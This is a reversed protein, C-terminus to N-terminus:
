RKREMLNIGIGMCVVGILLMVAIPEMLETLGRGHIAVSKLADLGYTIPLVKSIALLMNNTVLEIPWFAGGIMAMGTAVIPVVAQLQQPSQVLGMVLMSLAVISFTYVATILLLLGFQDGVDFNFLYKFLVLVLVIQVYGITFSYLLHGMYVQWKDLPSLILRNWTGFKKEEVIKMLSFMITYISFFLAMGFLMQLQGDYVFSEQEGELSQTEVTLAPEELMEAVRERAEGSTSQQELQRIRLEEAYTRNIYSEVEFRNPDDAVILLRYDDEMLQLAMGTDGDLVAQRAEQEEVLEFQLGESKNLQELWEDQQQEALAPHAYTPVTMSNGPNSGAMVMVFVITLALFSLVMLPARRFRQWQLLFVSTM